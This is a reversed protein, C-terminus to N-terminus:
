GASIGTLTTSFSPFANHVAAVFINADAEANEGDFDFTIGRRMTDFNMDSSDRPMKALDELATDWDFNHEGFYSVEVQM